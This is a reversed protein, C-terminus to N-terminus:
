RGNWCPRCGTTSLKPMSILPAVPQPWSTPSSRPSWASASGSRTTSGDEHTDSTREKIDLRGIFRDISERLFTALRDSDPFEQDPM